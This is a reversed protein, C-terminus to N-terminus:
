FLLFVRVKMIAAKTINFLLFESLYNKKIYKGITPARSSTIMHSLARSSCHRFTQLILCTGPVDLHQISREPFRYCSYFENKIHYREKVGVELHVM